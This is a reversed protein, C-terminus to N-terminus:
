KRVSIPRGKWQVTGSKHRYLSLFLLLFEQAVTLPILLAGIVKFRPWIVAMYLLATLFNVSISILALPQWWVILYPSIYLILLLALWLLRFINQSSEPYLLRVSTEIHSGWQKEYTLGYFPDGMLLRYSHSRSVVDALKAELVFTTPLSDDSSFLNLLVKRDILWANSSAQTKNSKFRVINWFHRLSSCINGLALIPTRQPVISVMTLDKVKALSVLNHITRRQIKTDVDLFVIYKGSAERALVSVAYNKGIWNRPLPKNGVFRVGAHAFSKIIISTSDQSADDLVIVELKPYESAVVSELCQALVKMENRASICISVTPLESDNLLDPHELRMKKLAMTMVTIIYLDLLVVACLIVIDLM